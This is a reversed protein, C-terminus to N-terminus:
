LLDALAPGFEPFRFGFGHSTAAAPVVRRSGLLEESLDGAGLRIAWAPARFFLPRHLQHALSKAFDRQRIPWPASANVVGAVSMDEVCFLILRALDELHIWPMWQDGSGLVAGLGMRFAPKMYHLAGGGRGLVVAFRLRVTRVGEAQQAEHEWARAVEALFDRGNPDAETLERDGCDGYYGVASACVFVEPREAARAIGEVVRRTGEVRSSLIREKKKKTWLGLISEGALHIVAECGDLNAPEDLQFSRTEATWRVSRSPDRSFAVVEHGRQHALKAVEQGVFGSAGTLAIRM